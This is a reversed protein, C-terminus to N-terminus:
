EGFQDRLEDFVGPPPIVAAVSPQFNRSVPSPPPAATPKDSHERWNFLLHLVWVGVLAFIGFRTAAVIEATWGPLTLGCMAVAFGAILGLLLKTDWSLGRLLVAVILLAGSCLWTYNHHNAFTVTISPSGGLSSYRYRNGETPFDIFGARPVNVWSEADLSDYSLWRGQQPNLAWELRMRTENTFGEADGVLRYEEPVWIVTNLQQVAVAANDYGGVQPLRLLLKGGWNEFPAEEAIPTMMQITLSFAEDSAAPRAVNVFYSDWDPVELPQANREPNVPQGDVFMGLLESGVPVDVRLRQRESSRIRYRCRYNAKTDRRAVVEVLGRTVVTEVVKQIEHKMADIQLGVPQRYYRYAVAGIQPLLRLERVDIAELGEDLPKTEVALSRDKMVVVEGSIDALEVEPQDGEGDLGLVRLTQFVVNVPANSADASEVAPADDDVADSAADEASAPAQDWSVQFRHSGTVPRQMTVTWTMWGDVAEDAPVSQKIAPASGGQLSVVQVRESVSEPVAFRFTDLGAFQVDYTLLTKVEVLEEKVNVTSGVSATLRTPRRETRIPIEVPRRNFTWAAASRQAAVQQPNLIGEIPAPQAAVVLEQDTIVDIGQAAVISVRAVEREIDLPEPIPLTLELEDTEDEIAVHGRVHLTFKQSPTSKKGFVVRLVKEDGNELHHERYLGVNDSVGDVTLEDPIAVRLEFVGAREVTYNLAANLKLEDDTLEFRYDSDVLLRPEVPKATVILEINSSYFKFTPTGDRRLREAIESTEIRALGTLREFQLSLDSAAAISIQGSERVADIAHIGHYAGDDDRGALPLPDTTFEHESHIEITIDDRVPNLFDITLTQADDGPEAKWGRIKANGSSVGLIRHKKPVAIAVSTMEGRLIDYDLWADTHALGDRLTVLHHNTVAALLDMDPKLGTRPHWHAAISTTSGLTAKIRTEGAAADVPLSVPQPTLEVTQDAEPIALEFTTIGVPPVTFSASRGDPSTSIPVALELKVVHEGAQGFLLTYTGNGTGRLLVEQGDAPTLKGVAAAGFQVPVEVWPKGLVQVKLEADIRLLSQDVRGRYHSETIVGEVSAAEPAPDRWHKLYEEYPLFVTSGHRDFVDKLNRYPLYILREWVSGAEAEGEDGGGDAANEPADASAPSDPLPPSAPSDDQAIAASNLLVAVALTLFARWNRRRTTRALPGLRNLFLSNACM